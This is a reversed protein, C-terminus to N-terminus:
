QPGDDAGNLNEAASEGPHFNGLWTAQHELLAAGAEQALPEHSDSAAAPWFLREPDLGQAQSSAANALCLQVQKNRPVIGPNGTANIEACKAANLWDSVRAFTTFNPFKAPYGAGCAWAMAMVALQADAPWSDWSPFYHKLTGEFLEMRQDLLADAGPQDLRLTTLPAAYNFHRTKLDQRAKLAMWQQAVTGASPNGLWTLPAAMPEPDILCGYGVTVLGLCDLYPWLVCGELPRTFAAFVDVVARKM